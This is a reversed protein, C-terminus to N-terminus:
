FLSGQPSDRMITQMNQELEQRYESLPDQLIFSAVLENYNPWRVLLRQLNDGGEALGIGSFSANGAHSVYARHCHVNRWGQGVVRRCWDNEEGYGRGFTASDFDGCQNIAKRSMWMCFGVGTPLDVYSAKTSLQAARAYVSRDDPLPNNELFRPFSCITANNSWPTISAIKDDTKACSALEQLWGESVETDSNLLVIDGESKAFARNCNEPFGLNKARREYEVPFVQKNAWETCMRSVRDDTSADDCILVKIDASLTSTLSALCKDLCDYANFVPLIVTISL